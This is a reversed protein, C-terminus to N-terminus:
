VWQKGDKPLNQKGRIMISGVTHGTLCTKQLAVKISGGDWTAKGERGGSDLCPQHNSQGIGYLALSVTGTRSTARLHGSPKQKSGGPLLQWTLPAIARFGGKQSVGM